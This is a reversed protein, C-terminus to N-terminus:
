VLCWKVINEILKSPLFKFYIDPQEIHKKLTALRREIPKLRGQIDPQEAILSL